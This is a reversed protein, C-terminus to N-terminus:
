SSKGTKPKTNKEEKEKTKGDENSSKVPVLRWLETKAVIIGNEIYAKSLIAGRHKDAVSKLEEEFADKEKPEFPVITYEPKKEEKSM